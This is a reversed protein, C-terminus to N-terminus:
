THPTYTIHVFKEFRFLSGSTVNKWTKCMNINRKVKVNILKVNLFHVGNETPFEKIEEEEIEKMLLHHTSGGRKDLTTM